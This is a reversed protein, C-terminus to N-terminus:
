ELSWIGIGAARAKREVDRFREEYKVDPPFVAVRALGKELLLENVMEEGIYAYALLRGYRDRESQDFELTVQKGQLLKRTFTSAEPGFPEEPSMEPTDILILRM